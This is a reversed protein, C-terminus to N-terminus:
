IIDAMTGERVKFYGYALIFCGLTITGSTVLMPVNPASGHLVVRRFNEILSAVPNLLYLTQLRPPISQLPYPVPTVFVGIQLLVPLAVGVDRLRIQISALFLAVASTFVLLIVVLPLAYFANWSLAIRYYAMLGGLIVLAVAFDVLAAFVYSLPIIERPFYLKTLIHSYGVMGNIAASVAGAFFIWPLLASFVFLPYPMGESAVRAVRSFILTYICMTSLPLLAAWIWGLASQKYRISLRVCTLTYLLDRHALLTVFASVIAGPSFSPPCIICVARPPAPLSGLLPHEREPLRRTSVPLSAPPESPNPRDGGELDESGHAGATHPPNM